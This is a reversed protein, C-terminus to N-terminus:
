SRFKETALGLLWLLLAPTWTDRLVMMGTWALLIQKRQSQKAIYLFNARFHILVFAISNQVIFNGLADYVHVEGQDTGFLIHRGSDPSWEVHRLNVKPLEKGWIRNGDVSGVIVAGDEYV